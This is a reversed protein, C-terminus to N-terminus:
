GSASAAERLTLFDYMEAASQLQEIRAVVCDRQPGDPLSSLEDLLRLRQAALRQEFTHPESRRRM